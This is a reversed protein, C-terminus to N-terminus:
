CINYRFRKIIKKRYGLKKMERKSISSAKQVNLLVAIPFFPVPEPVPCSYFPGLRMEECYKSYIMLFDGKVYFSIIITDQKTYLDGGVHCFSRSKRVNQYEKLKYISMPNNLLKYSTDCIIESLLFIMDYDRGLFYSTDKTFFMSSQEWYETSHSENIIYKIEVRGAMQVVEQCYSVFPYILILIVINKKM